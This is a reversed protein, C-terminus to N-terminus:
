PGFTYPLRFTVSIDPADATAGIELSVGAGLRPGLSHSYGILLAGVDLTESRFDTGNIETVTERIFDHKYGFSLSSNPNLAVSLGFSTRVADGPDVRGIRRAQDGSGLTRNVDDELNFLYGLNAYLVLPDSTGLVTISPEVAEFGSGTALEQEIAADDYDIDFPGEGTTSKYRLNAVWFPGDRDGRNIQWHASVSVDGLGDGDLEQTIPASGEGTDVNPIRAVRREERYVWPVELGLEFRDTVGYRFELAPSIVDRDVDEAELVGILFTELIEVGLFTFRNVQSNSLQISPEVVLAGDRTLVGGVDAIAAVEPREPEAEQPAQGVPGDPTEQAGALGAALSAALAWAGIGQGRIM